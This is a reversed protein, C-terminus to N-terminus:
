LVTFNMPLRVVEKLLYRSVANSKCVTMVNICELQQDASSIEESKASISFLIM